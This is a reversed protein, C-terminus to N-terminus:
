RGPLAAAPARRWAVTLLGAVIAALALASLALSAHVGVLTGGLGVTVGSFARLGLGSMNYLGIVRGRIPAPANLQVLAQAMANFALSVFGAVFLLALALPYSPALAFGGIAGCWLLALVLASRPRAALLGRGELLIGATLAGAADAALLLSYFIGADGHGLDQAFAPMQAQYGSGITLSAAGALLTMSAITRNAAIERVTAIIDVLGRM